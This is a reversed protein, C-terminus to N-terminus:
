IIEVPLGLNEYTKKRKNSQKKALPSFSDIFDIILAETKGSDPSLRTARGMKQIQQIQSVGGSANIYTEIEAIDKGTSWINSALVIAHNNDKLYQEAEDRETKTSDGSILKYDDLYQAIELGQQKRTYLILVRENQKALEAIKKNREENFVYHTSEDGLQVLVRADEEGEYMDVWSGTINLEETDMKHLQIKLKSLYDNDVHEVIQQNYVIPGINSYLRMQEVPNEICDMTASLGIHIPANQCSYIIKQATENRATRHAEDSVIVKVYPFLHMAKEYSQISLLIIRGRDMFNQGQIISVDEKALGYKTTFTEYTQHILDISDFLFLIKSKSYVYCFLAAIMGKGSGTPLQIGGGKSKLVTLVSEKQYKRPIYETGDNGIIKVEDKILKQIFQKNVGPFKRLDTVKYEIEEVELYAKLYELFGTPLLQYEEVYFSHYPDMIGRKVRPDYKLSNDIARFKSLLLQKTKQAEKAKDEDFIIKSHTTQVLIEIM